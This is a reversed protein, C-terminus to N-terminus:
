PALALGLVSRNCFRSEIEEGPGAITDSRALCAQQQGQCVAGVAVDFVSSGGSSQAGQDTSCDLGARLGPARGAGSSTKQPLWLWHIYWCSSILLINLLSFPFLAARHAAWAPACGQLASLFLGWSVLNDWPSRLM